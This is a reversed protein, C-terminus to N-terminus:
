LHETVAKGNAGAELSRPHHNKIQRLAKRGVDPDEGDVRAPEGRLRVLQDHVDAAAVANLDFSHRGVGAFDGAHNGGVPRVQEVVRDVLAAHAALHAFHARQAALDGTEARPHDAQPSPLGFRALVYRLDLGVGFM